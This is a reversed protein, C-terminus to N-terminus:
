NRIFDAMIQPAASDFGVVDLSGADNPDAITFETSTMGNVILKAPIGFQERYKRLAQVPHMKGAFTENDTYVVFADVEVRNQIAWLMPLSCDTAGFSLGSITKVVHDLRMKPSINLPVFQHCFAMVHSQKEARVTAMCMAGSADRPTLFEMGSVHGMGMSGSVDLGILVRKGSPEITDFAAYFADDLADIVRPDPSWTLAGKVGRGQSYVKHAALVNVPHIRAKRLAETNALKEIVKASGASLPKILGVATMKGLTRIMATLPMHELLAEWVEVSNLFTNPVAERPLNFRRINGVVTNVDGKNQADLPAITRAALLQAPLLGEIESNLEGKVIFNFLANQEPSTAHPHALRLLDRMAWGERQAYKLFQYALKEPPLRLFWNGIGKRAQRGWGRFGEMYSVFTLLDSATRAVDPLVEFAKQRTPVDGMGAAIALAFLAPKNKPARGSFSIDRVTQVTRLGDAKVCDVVNNANDVTLKQETAYYTGKESGLILFRDLYGWRDLRFVFGGANNQAQAAGPIPQTQITTRTNFHKNYSM